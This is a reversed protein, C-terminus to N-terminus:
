DPQRSVGLRLNGLGGDTLVTPLEWADAEITVHWHAFPPPELWGTYSGDAGRALKAARDQGARTPHALKLRLEAPAAADNELGSLRVRVTGDSAVGAVAGLHLAEARAVRALQRNILLGQKYYDEAIM